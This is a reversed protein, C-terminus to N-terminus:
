SSFCSSTIFTEFLCDDLAFVPIMESSLCSPTYIFAPEMGEDRISSVVGLPVYLTGREIVCIADFVAFISAVVFSAIIAVSSDPSLFSTDKGSFHSSCFEGASSLLILVTPFRPIIHFLHNQISNLQNVGSFIVSSFSLDNRECAFSENDFKQSSCGNFHAEINM